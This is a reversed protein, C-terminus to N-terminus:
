CFYRKDYLHFIVMKSTGEISNLIELIGTSVVLSGRATSCLSCMVMEHAYLEVECDEVTTVWWMSAAALKGLDFPHFLSDLNDVVSKLGHVVQV